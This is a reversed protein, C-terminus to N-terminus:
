LSLQGEERQITQAAMERAVRRGDVIAPGTHRCWRYAPVAEAPLDELRRIFEVELPVGMRRFWAALDVEEPLAPRLHRIIIRRYLYGRESGVSGNVLMGIVEFQERNLKDFITIPVGMPGPYDAPIDRVKDVNIAPFSRWLNGNVVHDTKVMLTEPMM